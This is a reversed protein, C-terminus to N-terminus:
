GNRITYITDVGSLAVVMALTQVDPWIMRRAQPGLVATDKQGLQILLHPVDFAILLRFQRWDFVLEM